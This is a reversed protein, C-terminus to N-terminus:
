TAHRTAGLFIVKLFTLIFLTLLNKRENIKKAKLLNCNKRSKLLFISKKKIVRHGTHTSHM